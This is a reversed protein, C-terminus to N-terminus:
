QHTVYDVETQIGRVTSVAVHECKILSGRLGHVDAQIGRVTNVVVHECGISSCRLGSRSSHRVFYEGVVLLTRSLLIINQM